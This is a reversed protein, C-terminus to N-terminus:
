VPLNVSVSVAVCHLSLDCGVSRHFIRLLHILSKNTLWLNCANWETKFFFAFSFNVSKQLIKLWLIHTYCCNRISFRKLLLRILKSAWSNKRCLNCMQILCFGMGRIYQSFILTKLSYVHWNHLLKNRNLPWFTEM